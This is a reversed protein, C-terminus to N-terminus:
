LAMEKYSRYLAIAREPVDTNAGRQDYLDSLHTLIGQKIPSPVDDATGYGAVYEIEVRQASFYNNLIIHEKTANLRYLSNSLTTTIGNSDFLNIQSVSQVPGYALRTETELVGEFSLKWSQSILSKRLYREAMQRAAVILESILSDDASHEVRLFHKALSLAVPESAPAIIRELLRTRTLVM